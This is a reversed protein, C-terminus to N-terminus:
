IYSHDTNWLLSIILFFKLIIYIYYYSPINSCLDRKRVRCDFVTKRKENAACDCEVYVCTHMCVCVCLTVVSKIKFQM